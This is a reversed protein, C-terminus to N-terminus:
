APCDGPKHGYETKDVIRKDYVTDSEGDSLAAGLDSLTVETCYVRKHIWLNIKKWVYSAARRQINFLFM